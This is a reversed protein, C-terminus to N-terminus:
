IDESDDITDEGDDILYFSNGNKVDSSRTSILAINELKFYTDDTLRREQEGAEERDMM